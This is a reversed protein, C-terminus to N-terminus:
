SPHDPSVTDRQQAAVPRDPLLLLVALGLNGGLAIVNGVQDAPPYVRLHLSHWLFHVATFILWAGGAMRLASPTPRRWAMVSLVLLALYLAGVDRTLHENYPGLASVWNRGPWPFDTYFSQPYAAAWVGVVAATVALLGVIARKSRISM